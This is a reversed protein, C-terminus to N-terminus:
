YTGVIKGLARVACGNRTENEANVIQDYDIVRNRGTRESRITVSHIGVHVVRNRVRRGLTRFESVARLRDRIDQHKM